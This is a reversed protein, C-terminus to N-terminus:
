QENNTGDMIRACVCVCVSFTYLQTDDRTFLKVRMASLACARAKSVCMCVCVLNCKGVIRISISSVLPKGVDDMDEEHQRQQQQKVEASGFLAELCWSRRPSTTSAAAAAALSSQHLSRALQRRVLQGSTRTPESTHRPRRQRRGRVCVFLTSDHRASPSRLQLSSGNIM